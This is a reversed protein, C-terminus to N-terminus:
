PACRAGRPGAAGSFRRERKARHNSLQIRENPMANTSNRMM